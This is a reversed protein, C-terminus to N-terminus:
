FFEESNDMNQEISEPDDCNIDASFNAPREFDIQDRYPLSRDAYVKRMYYGWIPLAMRAGQGSQLDEFHISRLEAGTWAGSVLQPTIGIFWGDSHNQTTGTKAAIPGKFGGYDPSWRLRGGSGADVVGRMLDTMLYATQEDIADHREARFTSIVNGHRDEIRTVFIPQTFVGKNAFTGYAGVMEYLTIDSTGLFMSPVPDIPSIVGMKKMIDAVSQPNFQKMVWASVQNVSHALGWKLTVMKDDFKTKGSNKAEWITGDPLIFQQPVNPVKSCPSMGNQMALTYLFPKVTSGVQRKGGKVMDYMFHSYNPGGVYAKVHGTKVEM